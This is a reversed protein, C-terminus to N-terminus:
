CRLQATGTYFAYFAVLGAKGGKTYSLQKCHSDQSAINM